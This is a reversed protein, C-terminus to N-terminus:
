EAIFLNDILRVEGIFAAILLILAKRDEFRTVSNLDEKRALELYEVKCGAQELRSLSQQRLGPFNDPALHDSIFLLERHLQAAKEKDSPALRDNRSSMALGNTERLIPCIVLKIKQHMEEILRGIVMCQQFDKQGVFLYDPRVRNLLKEVIQCVGQFHGPRFKGELITELTGLDFHKEGRAADPYMEKEDPVFLLDCGNEELLLLDADLNRPYKKLDEPNNFQTPNVFISCVTIGSIERCRQILSRHGEHLAGMTPVFGVAGGGARLKALYNQLDETQKVIIM